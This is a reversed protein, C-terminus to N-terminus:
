MKASRGSAKTNALENCVKCTHAKGAIGLIEEPYKALSTLNLEQCSRDTM